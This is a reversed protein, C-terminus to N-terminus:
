NKQTLDLENYCSTVLSNLYGHMIQTPTYGQSMFQWKITLWQHINISIM